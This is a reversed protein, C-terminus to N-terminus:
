HPPCTSKTCCNREPLLKICVLTSDKHDYQPGFQEWDLTPSSTVAETETLLCCLM